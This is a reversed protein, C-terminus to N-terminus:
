ESVGLRERQARQLERVFDVLEDHKKKLRNFRKVVELDADLLEERTVDSPETGEGDGFGAASDAARDLRALDLVWLEGRTLFAHDARCAAPQEPLRLGTGAVDASPGPAATPQSSKRPAYKRIEKKLSDVTTNTFEINSRLLESKAAAVAAGRADNARAQNALQVQRELEKTRAADDFKGHVWLGTGFALVVTLVLRVIPNALYQVGPILQLLKLM